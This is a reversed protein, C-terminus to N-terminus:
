WSQWAVALCCSRRSARRVALPPAAIMAEAVFRSALDFKVEEACRSVTIDLGNLSVDRPATIQLYADGLLLLTLMAPLAQLARSTLAFHSINATVTCGVRPDNKEVLM